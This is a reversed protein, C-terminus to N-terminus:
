ATHRIIIQNKLNMIFHELETTFKIKVIENIDDSVQDGFHTVFENEIMITIEQISKDAAIYSLLQNSICDYEDIPAGMKILGLPDFKNIALRIDLFATKYKRKLNSNM